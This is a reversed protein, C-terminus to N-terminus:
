DNTKTKPLQQHEWPIQYQQINQANQEKCKSAIINQLPIDAM